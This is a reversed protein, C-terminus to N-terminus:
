RFCGKLKWRCVYFDSVTGSFDQLLTSHSQWNAVEEGGRIRSCLNDSSREASRLAEEDYEDVTNVHELLTVSAPDLKIPPFSYRSM